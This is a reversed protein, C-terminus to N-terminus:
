SNEINIRSILKYELLDLIVSDSSENIPVTYMFVNNTLWRPKKFFSMASTKCEFADILFHDLVEFTFATRPRTTSTPFLGVHLLQLHNYTFVRSSHVVTIATTSILSPTGGNQPCSKGGHSMYWIFEQNALTTDDFCKNNWMQIEHFPLSQHSAVICSGCWGHDSTCTLCCCTGEAM